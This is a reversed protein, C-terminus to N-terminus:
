RPKSTCIGDVAIVGGTTDTVRRDDDHTVGLAADIGQDIAGMLARHNAILWRPVHRFQGAGTQLGGAHRRARAGKASPSVRGSAPLIMAGLCAGFRLSIRM